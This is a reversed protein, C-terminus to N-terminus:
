RIQVNKKIDFFPLGHAVSKNGFASYNENASSFTCAVTLMRGLGNFLKEM